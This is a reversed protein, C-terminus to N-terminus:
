AGLHSADDPSEALLTAVGHNEAARLQREEDFLGVRGQRDQVRCTKQRHRRQAQGEFLHVRISSSRRRAASLAPPFRGVLKRKSSHAHM